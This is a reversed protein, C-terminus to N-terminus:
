GLARVVLEISQGYKTAIDAPSVGEAADKRAVDVLWIPVEVEAASEFREAQEGAAEEAEAKTTYKEVPWGILKAKTEGDREETIGSPDPVWALRMWYTGPVLGMGQLVAKLEKATDTWTPYVCFRDGQWHSVDRSLVTDRLLRLQYSLQPRKTTGVVAKRAADLAKQKSADDGVTYPFFSDEQSMGSVFVKYGISFEVQGIYGGGGQQAEEQDMLGWFDNEM